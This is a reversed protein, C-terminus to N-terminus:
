SKKSREHQYLLSAFMDVFSEKKNLKEEGMTFLIMHILEHYYTLMQQDKVIKHQKTKNQIYIKNEMFSALGVAGAREVLDDKFEVTIRQSLLEFEKPIKM